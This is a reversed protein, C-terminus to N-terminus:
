EKRSPLENRRAFDGLFSASPKPRRNFTTRDVAVLGFRMQYGSNWEFNDLLSWHFYGRLDIGDDLCAQLSELAGQIYEIRERDDTAAVGNETVIVPLGTLRAARRVTEGVAAPYFEYGM